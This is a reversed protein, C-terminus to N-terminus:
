DNTHFPQRNLVGFLVAFTLSSAGLNEGVWSCPSPTKVEMHTSFGSM